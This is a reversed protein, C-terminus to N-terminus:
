AYGTKNNYVGSKMPSHYAFLWLFMDCLGVGPEGGIAYINGNVHLLPHHCPRVTPIPSLIQWRGKPFNACPHKLKVFQSKRVGDACEYRGVSIYLDGKVVVSSGPMVNVHVDSEQLTPFKSLTTWNQACEDYYQVPNGLKM